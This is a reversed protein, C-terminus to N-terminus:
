SKISIDLVAIHGGNGVETVLNQWIFSEYAISETHPMHTQIQYTYDHANYQSMVRRRVLLIKEYNIKHYNAILCTVETVM